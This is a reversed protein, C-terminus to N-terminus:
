CQPTPTQLPKHGLGGNPEERTLALFEVVLKKRGQYEMRTRPLIEGAKRCHPM